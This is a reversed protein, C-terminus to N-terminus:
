NKGLKPIKVTAIITYHQLKVKQLKIKEIKSSKNIQFDSM